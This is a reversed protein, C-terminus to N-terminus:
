AFEKTGLAPAPVGRVTVPSPGWLRVDLYTARAPWLALPGYPIDCCNRVISAVGPSGRSEAIDKTEVDRERPDAVRDPARPSGGSAAHNPLTAARQSDVYSLRIRIRRDVLLAKSYRACPQLACAWGNSRNGSTWGAQRIPQSAASPAARNDLSSLAHPAYRPAISWRPVSALVTRAHYADSSM